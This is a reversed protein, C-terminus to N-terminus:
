AEMEKRSGTFCHIVVPPPAPSPSQVSAKANSEQQVFGHRELVKMVQDFALREHVFLPKQLQGVCVIACIASLFVDFCFVGAINRRSGM